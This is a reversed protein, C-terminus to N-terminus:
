NRLIRELLDGLQRGTYGRGEVTAALRGQRDILATQLTHTILGQDPWVEVGFLSCVRSIEATTGTLFHWGPGEANSSRAYASLRELTDYKPDFTVVLLALDPGLHDKFRQALSRLNAVTRPCYDPLPCRTYVFSLVVVKGGLSGLTVTAGRHDTLTFDAVPQGIRAVTQGTPSSLMGFDTPEASLLTLRRVTTRGKRVSISLGVRDGRRVGTLIAPNAVTLPMVMADMYGPIDEHSITLTSSDRDVQLVLGRAQYHAACGSAMLMAAMCALASFTRNRGLFSGGISLLM